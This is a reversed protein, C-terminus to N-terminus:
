QPQARARSKFFAAIRMLVVVTAFVLLVGNGVELQDLSRPIQSDLFAAFLVYIGLKHLGKWAKQGLARAPADFSTILMAYITTYVIAGPWNFTLDFDAVQHDRLGILFLHGTHIGAFAVGVLKRNRLLKASWPKRVLQQLPRAAMAILLVAFAIRGSQRLVTRLNDDNLGALGFWTAAVACTLVIAALFTITVRRNNTMAM